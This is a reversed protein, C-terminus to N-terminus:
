ASALMWGLNRLIRLPMCKKKNGGGRIESKQLFARGEGYPPFAGKAKDPLRGYLPGARGKTERQAGLMTCVPHTLLPLGPSIQPEPSLLARLFKLGFLLCRRNKSIRKAM